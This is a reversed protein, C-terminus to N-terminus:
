RRDSGESSRPGAAVAELLNPIGCATALAASYDTLARRAAELEARLSEGQSWAREHDLISTGSPRATEWDALAPHWSTLLPRIGTNLIVLALYAFNYQGSKKPEALDPGYRRLIDRTTAFVSYLSSLAERLSGEHRDLPVVSIRTVLEVYLEWAASRETENPEWEGSLEMFGFNVKVGVRKPTGRVQILVEWFSLDVRAVSV